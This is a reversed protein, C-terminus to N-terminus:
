IGATSDGAPIPEAKQLSDVVIHGRAKFATRVIAEWAPSDTDGLVVCSSTNVTQTSGDPKPISYEEVMRTEINGLFHSGIPLSYGFDMSENLYSKEYLNLSTIRPKQHVRGVGPILVTEPTSFSVTKYNRGNKDQKVVSEQVKTVTKM